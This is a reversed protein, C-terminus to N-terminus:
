VISSSEQHPGPIDERMLSIAQVYSRGYGLSECIGKRCDSRISLIWRGRQTWVISWGGQYPCKIYNRTTLSYTMKGQESQVALKM